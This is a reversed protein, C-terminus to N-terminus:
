EEGNRIDGLAIQGHNDGGVHILRNYEQEDRLSGSRDAGRANCKRCIWPHQPPNSTLFHGAYVKEHECPAPTAPEDAAEAGHCDVFAKGSGCPCATLSALTVVEGRLIVIPKEEKNTPLYGVAQPLRDLIVIRGTHGYYTEGDADPTLRAVVEADPLPGDISIGDEMNSLVWINIGPGGRPNELQKRQLDNM